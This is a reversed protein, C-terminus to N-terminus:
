QSARSSVSRKASKSGNRRSSRSCVLGPEHCQCRRASRRGQVEPSPRDYGGLEGPPHWEQGGRVRGAAKFTNGTDLRFLHRQDPVRHLHRPRLRESRLRHRCRVRGHRRHHSTSTKQFCIQSRRQTFFSRHDARSRRMRPSRMLGRNTTGLRMAVRGATRRGQPAMHATAVPKHRNKTGSSSLARSWRRIWRRLNPGAPWHAM